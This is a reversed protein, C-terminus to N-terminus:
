LGATVVCDLRQGVRRLARVLSPAAIVSIVTSSAAHVLTFPAGLLLAAIPDAVGVVSLLGGLTTIIDYVIVGVVVLGVVLVRLVHDPATRASARFAGAGIALVLLAVVQWVTWPGIGGFAGGMATCLVGIAVACRTDVFLAACVVVLTTVEISPVPVVLNFVSALVALTAVVAVRHADGTGRVAWVWSAVALAGGVLISAVMSM